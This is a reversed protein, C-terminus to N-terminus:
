SDNRQGERYSTDEEWARRANSSRTVARLRGLLERTSTFFGVTDHPQFDVRDKEVGDEFLILTPTAQVGYREMVVPNHDANLKFVRAAGSHQEAVLDVIPALTRCPECWEAWFDVLVPTRSNLVVQDFDSESVERVYESM